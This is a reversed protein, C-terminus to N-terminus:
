LCRPKKSVTLLAVYASNRAETEVAAFPFSTEKMARIFPLSNSYSLCQRLESRPPLGREM